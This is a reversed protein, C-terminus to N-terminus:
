RVRLHQLRLNMHRKPIRRIGQQILNSDLQSARRMRVSCHTGENREYDDERYDRLERRLLAAVFNEDLAVESPRLRYVGIRCAKCVDFIGVVIASAAIM